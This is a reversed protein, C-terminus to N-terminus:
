YFAGSGKGGAEGGICGEKEEEESTSEKDIRKGAESRGASLRPWLLVGERGKVRTLVIGEALSLFDREL